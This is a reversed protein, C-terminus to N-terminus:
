IKRFYETAKGVAVGDSGIARNKHRVVDESGIQCNGQRFEAMARVWVDKGVVKDLSYSVSDGINADFSEFKIQRIVYEFTGM